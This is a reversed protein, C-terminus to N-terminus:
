LSLEGQVSQSPEVRFFRCAYVWFQEKTWTHQRRHWAGAAPRRGLQEISEPGAALNAPDCDAHVHLGPHDGHAELRAVVRREPTVAILWAKWDDYPELVQALLLYSDSGCALQACRWEWGGRMPRTRPFVSYRPPLNDRRWETASIIRKPRRGIFRARM